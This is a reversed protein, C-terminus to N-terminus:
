SAWGHWADRLSGVEVAAFEPRASVWERVKARDLESLSTRNRTSILFCGDQATLSGSCLMNNPEVCELMFSTHLEEVSAMPLPKALTGFAHFGMEQFEGLRLHKRLRRTRRARAKFKLELSLTHTTRHHPFGHQLSLASFGSRLRRKEIRKETRTTLRQPKSPLKRALSAFINALDAYGLKHEAVDVMIQELQPTRRILFGEIFLYTLATVLGTRKNADNFVHGRALAEAYMGAIEFVDELSGYQQRADIRGLAGELSGGSLGSLGPEERLILDHIMVVLDPHLTM